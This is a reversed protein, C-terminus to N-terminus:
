KFTSPPTRQARGGQRAEAVASKFCSSDSSVGIPEYGVSKGNKGSPFYNVHRPFNQSVVEYVARENPSSERWQHTFELPRNLSAEQTSLTKQFVIKAPSINDYKRVFATNSYSGDPRKIFSIELVRPATESASNIWCFYEKPFGTAREDTAFNKLYKNRQAYRM